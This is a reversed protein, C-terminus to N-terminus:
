FNGAICFARPTIWVFRTSMPWIHLDHVGSVGPLGELYTRIRLLDIRPTGSASVHKHFGAAAGVHGVRNSPFPRAPGFPSGQAEEPTRLALPCRVRVIMAMLFSRSGRWKENIALLYEL